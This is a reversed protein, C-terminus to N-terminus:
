PVRDESAIRSVDLGQNLVTGRRDLRQVQSCKAARHPCSPMMLAKIWSPTLAPSLSSYSRDANLQTADQPRTLITVLSTRSPASAFQLPRPPM